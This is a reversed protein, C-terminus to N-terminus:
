ELGGDGNEERFRPAAASLRRTILEPATVASGVVVAFAGAEFSARVDDVTWLGGEVIVPVQVAAAIRRALAANDRGAGISSPTYGALTTAVLDAGSRAAAVAEEVTSVDAMVPVGCERHVQHVIEAFTEGDPRTRPTADLAVIDAGAAIVTRASEFTPTIYVDSDPRHQKYIGIVPLATVARVASVNVPDDIRLGVAGGREASMAMAAIYEPADLPSGAAAQCSVILGHRIAALLGARLAAPADHGRGITEAV